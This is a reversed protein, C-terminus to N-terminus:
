PVRARRRLGELRQLDARKAQDLRALAKRCLDPPSVSTAGQRSVAGRECEAEVRAALQQWAAQATRIAANYYADREAEGSFSDRMLLMRVTAPFAGGEGKDDGRIPGFAIDVAEGDNIRRVLPHTSGRTVVLERRFYGDAFCQVRAAEGYRSLEVLRPTTVTVPQEVGGTVNCRVAQPDSDILTALVVHPTAKPPDPLEISCGALLAMGAVWAAMLPAVRGPHRTM